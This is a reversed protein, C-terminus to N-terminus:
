ENLIREKAINFYGEDMEIGIFKRNLNKCAVGTTGSGMFLDVVTDDPRTYLKIIYEILETPKQTPHVRGKFRFNYGSLVNGLGQSNNFVEEFTEYEPLTIFISKFKSWVEKTPVQNCINNGTYISWMGGGNTAVGLKTNIEKATMKGKSELLLSRTYERAYKTAVYVYETCNVHQKYQRTNRGGSVSKIDKSIVLLERHKLIESYLWRLTDNSGFSIFRGGFRLTRCSEQLVTAFLREAKGHDINDWSENVMGVYPPDIVVADVSGDPIEKMRDLCDGQMLWIGEDKYDSM